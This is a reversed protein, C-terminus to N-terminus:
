PITRARYRNKAGEDPVNVIGHHLNVDGLRLSRIENTSM